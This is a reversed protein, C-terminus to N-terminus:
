DLALAGRVALAEPSDAFAAWPEVVGLLTVRAGDHSDGDGNPDVAREMGAIVQDTRGYVAWGGSATRQWGAVRIPLVTAGPAVGHLGHPGGRGVLLGAMQTGHSELTSPDLPNAEAAAADDGAVVDYGG